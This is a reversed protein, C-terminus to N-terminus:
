GWASFHFPLAHLWKSEVQVPVQVFLIPRLMPWGRSMTSNPPLRQAAPVQYTESPPLVPRAFHAVDSSGSLGVNVESVVAVFPDVKVNVTVKSTATLPTALSSKEFEPLRAPHENPTVAVLLM